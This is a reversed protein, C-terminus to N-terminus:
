FFLSMSSPRLFKIHTLTYIIFELVSCVLLWLCHPCFFGVVVNFTNKILSILNVLDFSIVGQFLIRPIHMYFM